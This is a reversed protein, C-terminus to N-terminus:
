RAASATGSADRARDTGWSAASEKIKTFKGSANTLKADWEANIAQGRVAHHFKTMVMILFLPKLFAGRVNAAFLVAIVLGAITGGAAISDPLVFALAFAPVLMVVWIAITLVKDLVVIWVSTKLV